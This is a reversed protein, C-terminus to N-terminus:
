QIGGEMWLMSQFGKKLVKSLHKRDRVEAIGNDKIWEKIDAVTVAEGSKIIDAIGARNKYVEISINNRGRYM